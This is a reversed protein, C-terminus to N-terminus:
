ATPALRTPISTDTAGLLSTGLIWAGGGGEGTWASSLEYWVRYGRQTVRHTIREVFFDASIGLGTGVIQNAVVTVRDSVERNLVESPYAIGPIEIKCITFPSAYIGLGWACLEEADTRDTIFPAPLTYTRRGYTTQSTSDLKVVRLPDSKVVPLGRAQLKSWLYIDAAASSTFELLMTTATKTAVLALSGSQDSGSGDSASNVFYDTNAVPTTWSSMHSVAGLVDVSPHSSYFSITEGPGVTIPLLTTPLAWAVVVQPATIYNRVDCVFENLIQDDPEYHDIASYGLTVPVNDTFTAQSVTSRTATLRRRRDEFVIQGNGNEHLFGMETEEIERLKGMAFEGFAFWHSMVTATADDIDRDAAPWGANDLVYGIATGPSISTYAATDVKKRAVWSLPGSAELTAFGPWNYRPEARVQDIFGTWLTKAVPSTSRIRVKRRPKVNPFLASSSALPSFRADSNTLHLTLRGPEAKGTLQSARNRGTTWEMSTVRATEDVWTAPDTNTWNVEVIFTPLPM